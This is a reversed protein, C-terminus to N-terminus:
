QGEHFISALLASTVIARWRGRGAAIGNAAGGVLLALAIALGPVSSTVYRDLFVPKVVSAAVLTATPLATWALLIAFLRQDPVVRRGGRRWPWPCLATAM